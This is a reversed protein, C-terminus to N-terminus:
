NNTMNKISEFNIGCRARHFDQSGYKSEYDQSAFRHVFNTVSINKKILNYSILSGLGGKEIHEEIVFLKNNEAQSYFEDPISDPLLECVAWVSPRKDVDLNIFAELCLGSLPGLAVLCGNNGNLINRWPKYDPAVYNKPACDYGLRLYTPRQIDNLQYNIDNNFAPVLVDLGLSNMLACDELAHHSPGMIGYGYGGGNGVICVPLNNMCIDNRIQELPRAYCFPAISYVFVKLDQSALGAAFSVMNQEAVGCNIFREGFAEQIEELAMFGLDGTLFISTDSNHKSIITKSFIDRM